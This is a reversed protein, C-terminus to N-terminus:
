QIDKREFLIAAIGLAFAIYLLAYFLGHSMMTAPFERGYAVVDRINYRELNPALWYLGRAIVRVEKTGGKEAMAFLDISARGILFVAFTLAGALFASSIFVSVCFAVSLIVLNESFILFICEVFGQPAQEGAVSLVGMLVLGLFLHAAALVLACGVYKGFLFTTRSVPKAIVSYITKSELEKALSYIGVFLSILLGSVSIATFGFDLLIKRSEIITLTALLYSFGVILISAVLVGYFVKERLLSKWTAVILATFGNNLTVL